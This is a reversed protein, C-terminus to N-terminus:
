HPLEVSVFKDGHNNYFSIILYFKIFRIIRLDKTCTFVAVRPLLNIFSNKLFSKNNLHRILM